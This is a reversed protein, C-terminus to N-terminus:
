CRRPPRSPPSRPAGVPTTWPSSCRCGAAAGAALRIRGVHVSPDSGVLMPMPYVREAPEDLVKVAPNGAWADRIAAADAPRELQLELSLLHGFFTPVQIATGHFRPRKVWGPTLRELEDAWSLEESTAGSGPEVAGVQPM